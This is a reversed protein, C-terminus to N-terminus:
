EFDTAEEQERTIPMLFDYYAAEAPNLTVCPCRGSRIEELSAELDTQWWVKLDTWNDPGDDSKLQAPSLIGAQTESLEGIGNLRNNKRNIEAYAIAHVDPDACLAYVPLQPDQLPLKQLGALNTAGTKYDIVLTEGTALQDIRDIRVSIKKNLLALHKKEEIGVVTFPPRSAEWRLWDHVIEFTRQKEQHIEENSLAPLDCTSVISDIMKRLRNELDGLDQMLRESTKTESWFRALVLHVIVGRTAPDMGLAPAQIDEAGFRYYLVAYLPNTNHLKIHSISGFRPDNDKMAPASDDTYFEYNRSTTCRNLYELIESQGRHLIDIDRYEIDKLLPSVRTGENEGESSYSFIIEGACAKYNAILSQAYELEREASCRPTRYKKQLQIPIFPNPRPAAPIQDGSMGVLWCCDFAMGAGEMLGMVQVPAPPTQPHFIKRKLMSRMQATAGTFSFKERIVNNYAPLADLWDFFQNVAQYEVSNLPRPGPWGLTKLFSKVATVWHALEHNGANRRVLTVSEVLRDSAKQLGPEGTGDFAAYKERLYALRYKREPWRNLEDLFRMRALDVGNGWFPSLMLSRVQQHSLENKALGFLDFASGIVPVDTLPVGISIDYPAQTDTKEPSSFYDPDFEEIFAQEVQSRHSELGPVIIGIRCDPKQELKRRCWSAAAALEKQKNSASTSWFSPTEGQHLLPLIEVAQAVKRLLTHLLPSLDTFGYLYLTEVPKLIGSDFYGTLRHLAQERTIQRRGALTTRFEALCTQLLQTEPSPYQAIEEAPLNWGDIIARADVLADTVAEPNILQTHSLQINALQQWILTEQDGNLLAVDAGPAALDQAERWCEGIWSELPLIKLGRAPLNGAYLTSALFRSLRQNAALLLSRGSNLKSIAVPIATQQKMSIM